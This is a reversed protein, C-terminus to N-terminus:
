ETDSGETAQVAKLLEQVKEACKPSETVIGMLDAENLDRVFTSAEKLDKGVFQYPRKDTPNKGTRTINLITDMHKSISGIQAGNVFMYPNGNGVITFEVDGYKWIGSPIASEGQARTGGNGTGAGKKWGEATHSFDGTAMESLEMPVTITFTGDKYRVKEAIELGSSIYQRIQNSALIALVDDANEDNEEPADSLVLAKELADQFAKTPDKLEALTEIKANAGELARAAGFATSMKLTGAEFATEIDEAKHYEIGDILLYPNVGQEDYKIQM